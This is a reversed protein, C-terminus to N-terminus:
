RRRRDQIRRRQATADLVSSMDAVALHIAPHSLLAAQADRTLLPMITRLVGPLVARAAGGRMRRDPHDSLLDALALASLPHYAVIRTVVANVENAWCEDVHTSIREAVHAVIDARAHDPLANWVNSAHDHPLTLLLSPIATWQRARLAHALHHADSPSADMLDRLAAALPASDPLPLVLDRIDTDLAELMARAYAGHQHLTQLLASAADRKSGRNWAHALAVFAHSAPLAVDPPLAMISTMVQRLMPEHGPAALRDVISMDPAPRLRAQDDDALLMLLANADDHTHHQLAESLAATRDHIPTTESGPAASRQMVMAAALDMPRALRQQATAHDVPPPASCGCAVTFVAVPDGPISPMATILPYMDTLAVTKLAVPFLANRLDSEDGVHLRAVSALSESLRKVASLIPTRVGLSRVALHTYDPPLRALWQRQVDGPLTDWIAPDLAAFFAAVAYEMTIDLLPFVGRAAAIAACVVSHPAHHIMCEQVDHAIADWPLSAVVSAATEPVVDLMSHVRRWVDENEMARALRAVPGPNHSPTLAVLMEVVDAHVARAAPSAEAFANRAADIAAHNRAIAPLMTQATQPPLWPLCLASTWPNTRLMAIVRNLAADSLREAWWPPDDPRSQGWRRLVRAAIDPGDILAASEDGPHLLAVAVSSCRRRQVATTIADALDHALAAPAHHAWIWLIDNGAADAILRALAAHVAPARWDEDALLSPLASHMAAITRVTPHVSNCTAIVPAIGRDAIIARIADHDDAGDM